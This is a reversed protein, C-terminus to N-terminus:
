VCPDVPQSGAHRGVRPPRRSIRRHDSFWKNPEQKPFTSGFSSVFGTSYSFLCWDVLSESTHATSSGALLPAGNLRIQHLVFALQSVRVTATVRVRVAVDDGESNSTSSTM